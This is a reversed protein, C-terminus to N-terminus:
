TSVTQYVIPALTLRPMFQVVPLGGRSEHPRYQNYDVLWQDTIAQVQELNAFLHADLVETRYTRNFREIFANQNPKGPQICRIAIGKAGAWETFAESIMEPGNDLRIATPSGYCAILRGLVRILRALPIPVGVEIALCERNAEEIVNLTRFRRGCYLADHMFDLAWCRNPETALDLPQRLRDTLRKKCRRPSNVGMDCYVRHVRKKNWGRGGLQLRTFCKWFGWRGHRTEIANLAYIVQADRESAPMPKKFYAARSLGAIQCARTISLKAQVPQEMVERRASPTLIKSELCGQDCCEQALDSFMRKLKANETELERLRQLESVQVGSFKSKWLDYTANRIGHKRCLEAVPMGAEGKELVAVIQSETFKSKKM